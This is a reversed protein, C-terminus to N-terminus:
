LLIKGDPYTINTIKEKRSIALVITLTGVRGLFMLIVLIWKSLLTLNSTIGIGLGVTGFASNVEYLINILEIEPNEISIVFTALTVVFFAILIIAMAKNITEYNIQRGLAHVKSNKVFAITSLIGVALVTTKIGGGTSAPSAGIFMLITTLFKSSEHLSMQDISNFGATRATVSQFLSAMLKQWFNMNGITSLNNYELIFFLIAGSIILFITIYVVIKTHISTRQFNKHNKILDDIVTFGIGGLVILIMITFNVIINGQFSTISQYNGFIDFGANCFASISHFIAYWLGTSYGYKNVFAVFLLFAGVIEISFAIVIIKRALAVMGKMDYQGLSEKILVRDKLGIKKGSLILFMTAITMFGLGGIQILSIIIGQGFLSWHTGTDVVVLGTVCVASTSTFLCTFFDTPDGSSSSIPLTLLFAGILIIGLFGIAIIQPASLKKIM